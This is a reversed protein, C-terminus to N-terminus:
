EVIVQCGRKSDDMKRKTQEDYFKISKLREVEAMLDKRQEEVKRQKVIEKREIVQKDRVTVCKTYAVMKNMDKVDDEQENLIHQARVIIGEKTQKEELQIDTLPVEKKKERELNMMKEKKAKAAAM